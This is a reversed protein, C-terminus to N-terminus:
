IYYIGVSALIIFLLKCGGFDLIKLLPLETEFSLPPKSKVLYEAMSIAPVLYPPLSVTQDVPDVALIPTVCDPNGFHGLLDLETRENLGPLSCGLNGFHLDVFLENQKLSSERPIFTTPDKGGHAIGRSHLYSVGLLAQHTFSKRFQTSKALYTEFLNNENLRVNNYAPYSKFEGLSAVVETVFVQHTGNPGQIKFNDLM